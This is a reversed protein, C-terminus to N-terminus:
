KETMVLDMGRLGKRLHRVHHRICPDDPLEASLSELLDLADGTPEHLRSFAERYRELQEPTMVGPHLPEWVEVSQAKGKLVVSGIGFEKNLGELRAATNVADGHATYNVRSSSGFNGIVATGTHVGIRTHGMDIGAAIQEKRFKECFEDIEMACRVAHGAHGPLDIPANFIAFM